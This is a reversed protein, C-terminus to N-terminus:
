QEGPSGFNGTEINLSVGYLTANAVRPLFLAFSIVIVLSISKHIKDQTCNRKPSM